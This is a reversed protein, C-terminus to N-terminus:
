CAVSLRTASSVEAVSLRAAMCGCEPLELSNCTSSNRHAIAAVIHMPQLRGSSVLGSVINSSAAHQFFRTASGRDSANLEARERERGTGSFVVNNQSTSIGLPPMKPNVQSASNVNYLTSPINACPVNLTTQVGVALQSLDVDLADHQSMSAMNVQVPLNSSSSM